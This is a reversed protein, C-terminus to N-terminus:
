DCGCDNPWGVLVIMEFGACQGAPGVVTQTRMEYAAITHTNYADDLCCNLAARVVAMDLSNRLASAALDAIAPPNMSEDPVPVCRTLSLTYESVVWPEGCIDSQSVDELPFERSPYRRNESIVLQGCECNDWAIEGIVVGHRNIPWDGDHPVADYACGVILEAVEYQTLLVAM